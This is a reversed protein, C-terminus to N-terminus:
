VVPDGDVRAEFWVCSGAGAPRVGWREALRNIIYLGMGKRPNPEDLGTPTFGEGLDYVHFAVLDPGLRMDVHLEQDPGVGGHLVANTVVESLVLAIKDRVRVDWARGTLLAGRVAAPAELGGRFCYMTSTM